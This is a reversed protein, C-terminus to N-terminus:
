FRILQFKNKVRTKNNEEIIKKLEYEEIDKKTINQHKKIGYWNVRDKLELIFDKSLNQNSSVYQWYVKDKFERIFDESLKQNISIYLWNVKNKFEEISCNLNRIEMIKEIEKKVSNKM